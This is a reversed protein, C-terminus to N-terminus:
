LAWLIVIHVTFHPIHSIVYRYSLKITQDLVYMTIHVTPSDHIDPLYNAGHQHITARGIWDNVSMPTALIEMGVYFFPM